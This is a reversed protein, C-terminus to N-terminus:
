LLPCSAAVTGADDDDLEGVTWLELVNLSTGLQRDRIRKECRRGWWTLAM